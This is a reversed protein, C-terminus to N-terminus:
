WEPSIDEDLPKQDAPASPTQQTQAPLSVRARNREILEGFAAASLRRQRSPREIPISVAQPTVNRIHAAFQYRPQDLLFDATTRMEAAMARADAASLGSAFKISTNAHLSSKLSGTAQDLYQHAFVCGCKYKRAETLLDDINSSFFSAAEDVILFTPKREAEPIAARELVAQLVLSIFLRGFTSSNEKLFDKATDVLIVAGRNMETFLDVKTEPSTFLRAMTPNEIIAQLRYRIQEKTQEFTKSMFDRVFFERPIEPLAAIADAYPAPDSMLKMMDLITANRGMTEPLSLMLRAVYRFFVDQKGTLSLNTLGGFLYNFTQIVGATVQERTAEDYEEMRDRNIAFINLAPPHRTDRPDIIILRDEIGLDAHILRRVLDSHPDILIITPPDDSTLDHLILNEILTTKGANTGGIIHMHSFRDEQTLKLPVPTTFIDHFPTGALYADVTEGLPLKAEDPTKLPRKSREDDIGSVACINRFLQATVARFLGRDAYQDEVLTGYIHEVQTRPDTIAYVLPITFPSPAELDPLSPALYLTRVLGEHFLQLIEEKNSFFYQKAYLLNRYEVFEQMSMRHFDPPPLEWIHREARILTHTASILNQTLTDPLYDFFEIVRDAVSDPTEAFVDQHAKVWAYLRETEEIERQKENTFRRFFPIYTSPESL